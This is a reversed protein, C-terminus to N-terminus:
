LGRIEEIFLEKEFEPDKNGGNSEKGEQVCEAVLHDDHGEQIQGTTVVHGEENSTVAAPRTQINNPLM